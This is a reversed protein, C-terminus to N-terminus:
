KYGNRWGKTKKWIFEYLILGILLILVLIMVAMCKFWTPNFLLLDLDTEQLMDAVKKYSFDSSHIFSQFGQYDTKMTWGILIHPFAIVFLWWNNKALRERLLYMLCIIGLVLTGLSAMYFYETNHIVTQVNDPSISLGVATLPILSVILMANNFVGVVIGIRSTLGEKKNKLVVYLYSNTVIVSTILLGVIVWDGLTKLQFINKSVETSFLLAGSSFLAIYLVM